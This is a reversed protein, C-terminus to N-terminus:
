NGIPRTIWKQYKLRLSTRLGAVHQQSFGYAARSAAARSAASVYAKLGDDVSARQFVHGGMLPPRVGVTARREREACGGDCREGGDARAIAAGRHVECRKGGSFTTQPCRFGIVM